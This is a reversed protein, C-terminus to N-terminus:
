QAIKLYTLIASELYRSHIRLKLLSNLVQSITKLYPYIRKRPNAKKAIKYSIPYIYDTRIPKLNQKHSDCTKVLGIKMPDM